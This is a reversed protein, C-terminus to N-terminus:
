SGGNNMFFYFVVWVGVLLWQMNGSSKGSDKIEAAVADVGTGNRSLKEELERGFPHIANFQISNLQISNFQTLASVM